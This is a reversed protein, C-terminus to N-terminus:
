CVVDGSEGAQEPLLGLLALDTQSKGSGSEGVLGVSESYDIAFSVDDVVRKGGYAITLGNVELFSM